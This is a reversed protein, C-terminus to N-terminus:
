VQEMEQQTTKFNKISVNQKICPIKKCLTAAIGLFLKYFIRYFM